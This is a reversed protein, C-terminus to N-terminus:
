KKRWSDRISRNLHFCILVYECGVDDTFWGIAICCTSCLKRSQRKAFKSHTRANDNVKFAIKPEITVSTSIMMRLRELTYALLTSEVVTLFHWSSSLPLLSCLSNVTAPRRSWKTMRWNKDSIDDTPRAEDSENKDFVFVSLNLSTLMESLAVNVQNPRDM